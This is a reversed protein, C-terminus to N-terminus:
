RKGKAQQMKTVYKWIAQNLDCNATTFPVHANIYDYVQWRQADYEFVVSLHLRKVLAMAQADHKLPDYNTVPDGDVTAIAMGNKHRADGKVVSYGMAEACLRVTELDTMLPHDIHAPKTM